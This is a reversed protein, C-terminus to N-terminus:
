KSDDKYSTKTPILKGKRNVLHINAIGQDTVINLVVDDLTYRTSRFADFTESGNIPISKVYLGDKNLTTLTKSKESSGRKRYAIYVTVNEWNYIDTNTIILKDPIGMTWEVSIKPHINNLTDSFSNTVSSIILKDERIRKIDCFGNTLAKKIMYEIQYSSKGSIAGYRALTYIADSDNANIRYAKELLDASIDRNGKEIHYNALHVLSPLHSPDEKLAQKILRKAENPDELKLMVAGLESLSQVRIPSRHLVTPTYDIAFNLHHSANRWDKKQAYRHGIEYQTFYLAPYRSVLKVLEHTATNNSSTKILYYEEFAKTTIFRNRDVNNNKSIGERAVSLDFEIESIEQADFSTIDNYLQSYTKNQEDLNDVKDLLLPLTYTGGFLMIALDLLETSQQRAIKEDQRAKLETSEKKQKILKDAISLVKKYIDKIDSSVSSLNVNGLIDDRILQANYGHRLFGLSVTLHNYADITTKTDTTDAICYSWSVLLVLTSRLFVYYINKLIM